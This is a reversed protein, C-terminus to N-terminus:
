YKNSGQRFNQNPIWDSCNLAIGVRESIQKRVLALFTKYKMQHFVTLFWNSKIRDIRRWDSASIWILRFQKSKPNMRIPKSDNRITWFCNKWHSLNTEISNREPVKALASDSRPFWILLTVCPGVPGLVPGMNWRRESGYYTVKGRIISIFAGIRM